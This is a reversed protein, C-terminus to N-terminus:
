TVFPSFSTVGFLTGRRLLDSASSAFLFNGSLSFSLSLSLFCSFRGSDFRRLQLAQAPFCRALLSFYSVGFLLVPDVSLAFLRHHATIETPSWSPHCPHRLPPSSLLGSSLPTSRAGHVGFLLDPQRFYRMRPPFAIGGYLFFITERRLPRHVTIRWLPIRLRTKLVCSRWWAMRCLFLISENSNLCWDINFVVSSKCKIVLTNKQTLQMDLGCSSRRETNMYFRGGFFTGPAAGVGPTNNIENRISSSTLKPKSYYFIIIRLDKGDFNM